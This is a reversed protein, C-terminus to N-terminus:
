VPNLHRVGNNADGSLGDSGEQGLRRKGLKEAKLEALEASLKLLRRGVALAEAENRAMVKM